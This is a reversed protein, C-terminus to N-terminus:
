TEQMWKVSRCPSFVHPFLYRNDCHPLARNVRLRVIYITHKCLGAIHFQTANQVSHTLRFRLHKGGFAALQKDDGRQARPPLHAKCLAVRNAKYVFAQQFSLLAPGGCCQDEAGAM